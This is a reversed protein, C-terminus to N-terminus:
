GFLVLRSEPLTVGEPVFARVLVVAAAEGALYANEDYAGTARASGMRYPVSYETFLEALRELDGTNGAAFMVHHDESTLRKAEEIADTLAGHFRRTPQSPVQVVVDGERPNELTLHELSGGDLATIQTFLEEPDFYLEEPRALNGVGSREHAAGVSEW